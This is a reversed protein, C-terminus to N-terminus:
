DEGNWMVIMARRLMKVNSTVDVSTFLFMKSCLDVCATNRSSSFFLLVALFQSLSFFLLQFSPESYYIFPM